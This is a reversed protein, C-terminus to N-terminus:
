SLRIARLTRTSDGDCSGCRNKGMVHIGAPYVRRSAPAVLLLNWAAAAAYAVILVFLTPRAIEPFAACVTLALIAQIAKGLFCGVSLGYAYTVLKIGPHLEDDIRHSHFYLATSVFDASSAAAFLGCLKPYLHLVASLRQWLRRAAEVPGARVSTAIAAVIVALFVLAPIMWTRAAASADRVEAAFPARDFPLPFLFLKENQVRNLSLWAILVLCGAVILWAFHHRGIIKM